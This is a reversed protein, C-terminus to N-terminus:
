LADIKQCLVNESEAFVAKLADPGGQLAKNLEQRLFKGEDLAVRLITAEIGEPLPAIELAARVGNEWKGVLADIAGPGREQIALSLQAELVGGEKVVLAKLASKWLPKILKAVPLLRIKMWLAQLWKGIPM